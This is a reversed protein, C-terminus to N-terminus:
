LLRLWGLAEEKGFEIYKRPPAQFSSVYIKGESEKDTNLAPSNKRTRGIVSWYGTDAISGKMDLTQMERQMQAEKEGTM